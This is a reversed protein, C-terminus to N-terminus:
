VKWGSALVLGLCVWCFPWLGVLALLVAMPLEKFLFTWADFHFVWLCSSPWLFQLSPAVLGFPGQALPSFPQLALPGFPWLALLTLPWLALLSFPWPWPALPGFPQLALPGFPWLALPNFPPGFPWLALPCLALPWLALLALPWLALPGLYFALPGFLGLAREFFQLVLPWLGCPWFSWLGFLQLAPCLRFAWLGFRELGFLAWPQPGFDSVASNDAQRKWSGNSLATVISFWKPICFHLVSLSALLEFPAPFALIASCADNQLHLMTWKWLEWGSWFRLFIKLISKQHAMAECLSGLIDSHGGSSQVHVTKLSNSEFRMWVSTFAWLLIKLSSAVFILNLCAKLRLFLANKVVVKRLHHGNQRRLVRKVEM